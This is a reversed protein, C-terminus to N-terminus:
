EILEIKYKFILIGKSAIPVVKFSGTFNALHFVKCFWTSKCYKFKHCSCSFCTQINKYQHITVISCMFSDYFHANSLIFSVFASVGNLNIQRSYEWPICSYYNCDSNAHLDIYFGPFMIVIVIPAMNSTQDYCMYPIRSSKFHTISIM